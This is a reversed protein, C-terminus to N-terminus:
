LPHERSPHPRPNPLAYATIKSHGNKLHLSLHCVYAAKYEVDEIEAVIHVNEQRTVVQQNIYLTKTLISSDAKLCVCFAASKPSLSVLM